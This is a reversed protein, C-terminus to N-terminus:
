SSSSRTRSLLTQSSSYARSCILSSSCCMASTSFIIRLGPSSLGAAQAVRLPPAFGITAHCSTCAASSIQSDVTRFHSRRYRASPTAPSRSRKQRGRRHGAAVGVASTAQISRSRRCRHVAASIAARRCSPRDVTAHSSCRCPRAQRASSCSSCRIAAWDDLTGRVRNLMRFGRQLDPQGDLAVDRTEDACDRSASDPLSNSFRGDGGSKRRSQETEGGPGRWRSERFLQPQPCRTM